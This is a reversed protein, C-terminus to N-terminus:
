VTCTYDNVTALGSSFRGGTLEFVIKILTIFKSIPEPLNTDYKERAEREATERGKMKGKGRGGRKRM